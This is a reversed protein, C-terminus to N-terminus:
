SNSASEESEIGSQTRQKEKSVRRLWIPLVVAGILIFPYYSLFRWLLAVGQSIDADPLFESLFAPFIIEAIGSAGPTFSVLLIVWMVLQRGYILLMHQYVPSFMLFLANVMMFRSSWSLFTAGFAKLWFAFNKHKFEAAATLLDKGWVVSERKWRRLLPLSFLGLIFKRTIRPNILIGIALLLTWVFLIAYGTWFLFKVSGTSVVSQLSEPDLTPFARDIGIFIFVIPVMLIFFLEDLFSTILVIATTRGTELKEQAMIVLAVATGGIVSPSIASSFEWLLSIELSQRFSLKKDSLIRLRLVYGLERGALLVLAGFLWYISASTWQIQRYPEIDFNRFVLWFTALLGIGVALFIRGGSFYQNIKHRVEAM